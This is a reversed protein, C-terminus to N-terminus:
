AQDYEELFEKLKLVALRRHNTEDYEEDTMEGRTKTYGDPIYIQDFGFAFDSTGRITPSVSGITMGEFSRFENGDYFGLMMRVRVTKNDYKHVLEAIKELGLVEEFFKIFPGPLGNLVEIEFAVDDVIVPKNVQKFASKAKHEIIEALNVSQIEELNIKIYDIDTQLYKSFQKAKSANGTILTLDKIM